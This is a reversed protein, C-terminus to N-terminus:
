IRLRSRACSRGSAIFDDGAGAKNRYGRLISLGRRRPCRCPGFLLVNAVPRLIRLGCRFALKMVECPEQLHQDRGTPGRLLLALDVVKRARLYCDPGSAIGPIPCDNAHVQAASRDTQMDRRTLLSRLEADSRM